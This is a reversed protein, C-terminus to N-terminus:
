RVALIAQSPFRLLAADNEPLAEPIQGCDITAPFERRLVDDASLGFLAFREQWYSSNQLRSKVREVLADEIKGLVRHQLYAYFYLIIANDPATKTSVYRLWKLQQKLKIPRTERLLRAFNLRVNMYFWINDLENAKPVRDLDYFDLAEALGSAPRGTKEGFHSQQIKGQEVARQRSYPGLQYPSVDVGGEGKLSGEQEGLLGKEVMADYIPTNKWPQLIALNHWDLNMEECLRITDFIMRITENPFGIILLARTNIQPYKKLVEAARRFIRPTGPKRITRLIDANGSEIGLNLGICGSAAAADLVEENLSAAIVGNTADWTMDLNRKVMGNFLEIARSENMLLDDDLWIIHGIGFEKLRALEDLVSEVSRQRVGKGNFNRVNCFTCAARCGRNSLATAIRTDEYRFGYWSGLTGISSHSAIDMMEYPPIVDLEEGQPIFTQAFKVGRNGSPLRIVVQGVQDIPVKGNVCDIFRVFAKEAENLFSFDAQPIEDMIHAVDHTVHVGGIAVPVKMGDKLWSPQFEKTARCVEKLSPGTVSFICTVGILDPQYESLTDFLIKKWTAAYDFGAASESAAVKKLLEHNLNCIRAEYGGNLLHRAVVGLGYSPYNNARGRKATDYDFLEAHVDPPNVLLVKRVPKGNFLNKLHGPLDGAGEAVGGVAEVISFAGPKVLRVKSM